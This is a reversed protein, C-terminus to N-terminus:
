HPFGIVIKGFQEGRDLRRLAAITEAFPYVLDVVPVIRHAAVFEVM